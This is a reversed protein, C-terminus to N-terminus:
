RVSEQAQQTSAVSGVPRRLWAYAHDVIAHFLLLTFLGTRTNEPYTDIISRSSTEIGKKPAIKFRNHLDDARSSRYPYDLGVARVTVFHASGFIIGDPIREIVSIEISRLSTYVILVYFHLPTEANTASDNPM